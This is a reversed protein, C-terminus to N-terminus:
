NKLSPNINDIAMRTYHYIREPSFFDNSVNYIGMGVVSFGEHEAAVWVSTGTISHTEGDAWFGTKMDAPDLSITGVAVIFRDTPVGAVAASYINYSLKSANGATACPIIIYKCDPLFSKDLLNQPKGQFLVMKDENRSSWDKLIGIFANHYSKYETKEIETMHLISKGEYAFCVGDYNYKNVLSFSNHLSDVMYNIFTPLPSTIEIGDEKAKNEADKLLTYSQKIADFSLTFVFKTGKNERTESIEEIERDVLNNPYLISVIDTSDPIVNIHQARNFPQKEKNDFSVFITKHNSEKYTRLSELYDAYLAPNEDEIGPQNIDLSENDTWDDCSTLLFSAILGMGCLAFKYKSINKM